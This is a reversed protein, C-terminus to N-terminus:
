SSASRRRGEVHRGRDREDRAGLHRTVEAHARRDGQADGVDARVIRRRRASGAGCRRRGASGADAARGTASRRATGCRCRERRLLRQRPCSRTAARRRHAAARRRHLGPHGEEHRPWRRRHRSGPDPRDRARGRHALRGPLRVLARERFVCSACAPRPPRRRPLPPLRHPSRRLLRNPSRSRSRACFGRGRRRDAGAGNGGRRDRGRSCPDRQDRRVGTVAGRHRGQRDLDRAADRRGRDHRRGAEVM